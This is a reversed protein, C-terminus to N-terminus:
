FREGMRLRNTERLLNSVSLSPVQQAILPLLTPSRTWWQLWNLRRMSDRLYPGQVFVITVLSLVILLSRLKNGNQRVAAIINAAELRLRLIEWM